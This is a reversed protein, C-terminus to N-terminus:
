YPIFVQQLNGDKMFPGFKPRLQIWFVQKHHYWDRWSSSVIYSILSPLTRLSCSLKEALCFMWIEVRASIHKDLHHYHGCQDTQWAQFAVKKILVYISFASSCCYVSYFFVKLPIILLWQLTGLRGRFTHSIIQTLCSYNKWM